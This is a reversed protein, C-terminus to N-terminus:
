YCERITIFIIISRREIPGDFKSRTSRSISCKDYCQLMLWSILISSRGILGPPFCIGLSGERYMEFLLKAQNKHYKYKTLACIKIKLIQAKKM